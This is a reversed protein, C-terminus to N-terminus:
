ESIDKFSVKSGVTIGHDRCFFANVELVYKSPKEISYKEKSLPKTNESWGVIRKDRSIFIIDLPIYTNVMVFTQKKEEHFIFLMGKDKELSRRYMLGLSREAPKSAVEVKVRVVKGSEQHIYIEPITTLKDCGLCIDFSVIILFWAYWRKVM